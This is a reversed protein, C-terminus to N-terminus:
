VPDQRRPSRPDNRSIVWGPGSACPASRASASPRRCRRPRTRGRTRASCLPLLPPSTLTVKTVSLPNWWPHRDSSSFSSPGESSAMKSDQLRKRLRSGFELNKSYEGGSSSRGGRWAARSLCPRSPSLSSGQFSTSPCRLLSTLFLPGDFTFVLFILRGRRLPVILTPKGLTCNHDTAAHLM